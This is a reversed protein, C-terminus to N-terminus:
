KKKKATKKAALAPKGATAPKKSPLAKKSSAVLGFLSGLTPTPHKKIFENFKKPDTFEKTLKKEKGNINEYYMFEGHFTSKVVM